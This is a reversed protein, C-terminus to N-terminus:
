LTTWMGSKCGGHMIDQNWVKSLLIHNVNNQQINGSHMANWMEKAPNSAPQKERWINKKAKQAGPSTAACCIYTISAPPSLFESLLKVHPTYPRISYVYTSYLIYYTHYTSERLPLPQANDEQLNRCFTITHLTFWTKVASHAFWIKLVSLPKRVCLIYKNLGSKLAPFPSRYKLKSSNKPGKKLVTWIFM